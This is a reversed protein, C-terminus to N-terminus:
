RRLLSELELNRDRSRKVARAVRDAISQFLATHADRYCGTRRSSFFIVGIPEGDVVLPCTLNSHIGEYLIRQTAISSPHERRYVRLDNIIRPEGTELVRRLSDSLPATWGIYLDVEEYEARAWRARLRDGPDLLAVGIRDFPIYDRLVDYLRDCFVDLVLGPAESDPDDVPPAPLRRELEAELRELAAELEARKSTLADTPSHKMYPHNFLHGPLDLGRGVGDSDAILDM